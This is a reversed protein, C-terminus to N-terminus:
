KRKQSKFRNQNTVLQGKLTHQATAAILFVKYIRQFPLLFFTGALILCWHANLPRFSSMFIIFALFYNKKKKPKMTFGKRTSSSQNSETHSLSRLNLCLFREQLFHFQLFRGAVECQVARLELFHSQHLNISHTVFEQMQM